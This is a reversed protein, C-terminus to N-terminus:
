TWRQPHRSGFPYWPRKMKRESRLWHTDRRRHGFRESGTARTEYSTTFVEARRNLSRVAWFIHRIVGQNLADEDSRNGYVNDNEGKYTGLVVATVELSALCRELNTSRLFVGVRDRIFDLFDPVHPSRARSTFPTLLFIVNLMDFVFCRGFVAQRSFENTTVYKTIRFRVKKSAFRVPHRKRM